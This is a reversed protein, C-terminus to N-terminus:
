RGAGKGTTQAIILQRRTAKHLEEDAEGFFTRNERLLKRWSANLKVRVDHGAARFSELTAVFRRFSEDKLAQVDTLSVILTRPGGVLVGACSDAFTEILPRDLMGILRVAIPSGITLPVAVPVPALAVHL